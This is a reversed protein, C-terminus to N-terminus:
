RDILCERGHNHTVVIGPKGEIALMDSADQLADAVGLGLRFGDALGLREQSAIQAVQDLAESPARSAAKSASPQAAASRRLSSTPRSQCFSPSPPSKTQMSSRPTTMVKIADFADCSWASVMTTGRWCIGFAHWASSTQAAIAL